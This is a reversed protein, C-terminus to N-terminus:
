RKMLGAPFLDIEIVPNKKERVASNVARSVMLSAPGSIGYATFLLEGNSSALVNRGLRVTVAADWKIGQLVHIM